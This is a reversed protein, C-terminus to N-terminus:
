WAASRLTVKELALSSGVLLAVAGLRVILQCTVSALESPAPAALEAATVLVTLTVAKPSAGIILAPAEPRDAARRAIGAHLLPAEGRGSAPAGAAAPNWRTREDPSLMEVDRLPRDPDDAAAALIRGLHDLMRCVKPGDYLDSNYEIYGHIGEGPLETCALTMDFRSAGNDVDLSRMTFGAEEPSMLIPFDLYIFSVQILPNRSADQAPRLESVLTAFPV